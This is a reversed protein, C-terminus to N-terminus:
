TSPLRLRDPVLLPGPRLRGDVLRIYGLKELHLRLASITVGFEDRLRYLTPWACLDLDAVRPLLLARPLLLYRAFTCAQWERWWDDDPHMARHREPADSTNRSALGDGRARFVAVPHCDFALQHRQGQNLHFRHHGLEHALATRELGPHEALLTDLLNANVTVEAPRGSAPQTIKSVIIYAGDSPLPEYLLPLQLYAELVHEVPVPPLVPQGRWRAYAALLADAAAEIQAASLVPPRM